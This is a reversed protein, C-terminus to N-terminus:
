AGKRGPLPRETRQERQWKSPDDIGSIGGRGALQNLIEGLRHGRRHSAERSLPNVDTTELPDEMLHDIIDHDDGASQEKQMVVVRVETTFQNRYKEPIQITGDKPTTKFEIAEMM